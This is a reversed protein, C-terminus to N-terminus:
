LAQEVPAAHALLFGRVEQRVRADQGLGVHGGSELVVAKADPIRPASHRVVGASNYPDDAVGILLVPMRLQEIPLEPAVPTTERMDYALGVQRASAPFFGDVIGKRFEPTVRGMLSPPVGAVRLLFNPALHVMAWVLLDSALVHDLVFGPPGTQRPVGPKPPIHLAPVMLVLATVRDPCRLALQTAAPAGASVAIVAARPVDLADLLGAFTEAQGAHSANDPMPSRLYGFRSPAIVRFGDGTLATGLKLAMDFGGASGHSVLVPPGVGTEATEVLGCTTEVLRSQGELRARAARMDARFASRVAAAGVVAGAGFLATVLMKTTGTM